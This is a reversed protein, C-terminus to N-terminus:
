TQKKDIQELKGAQLRYIKEMHLALEMSHTVIVMSLEMEHHLNTLLAALMAANGSDLSGTPEDALLLKPENILARVVAARQCEGVSLTVPRQHIQEKLGVKGLFHYARDRAVTKRMKDKEPLLPLLVNELLTLQPLLYHLQFVFGIQGNRLKALQKEDLNCTQEGQIIVNGSTPRDLTGLINLLTTKGSGSPGTIAISDHNNISISIDNLIPHHICSAPNLICSEPHLISSAPHQIGSAPYQPLTRAYIKTINQLEALISM